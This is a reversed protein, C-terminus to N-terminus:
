LYGQWEDWLNRVPLGVKHAYSVAHHTGGKPAGSWLAVCEGGMAWDIMWKNRAYMKWAAYKGPSVIVVEHAVSLLGRLHEQSSEPWRDGMGYFPVAATFSISLLNCAMAMAQDWGLAMGSVVETDTDIHPCLSTLALSLLNDTTNVSYGGLSALRHGTVAIRHTM